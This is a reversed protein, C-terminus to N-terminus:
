AFSVSATGTVAPTQQSAATSTASGATAPATFLGTQDISGASASWTVVQTTTGAVSASFQQTAGVAITATAPSVSVSTAAPPPPQIKATQAGIDAVIPKLSASAASLTAVIGEIAAPSVGGASLQSVAADLAADVTQLAALQGQLATVAATLDALAQNATVMFNAIEQLQPIVVGNLIELIERDRSM